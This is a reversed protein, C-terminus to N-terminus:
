KKDIFATGSCSSINVKPVEDPAAKMGISM